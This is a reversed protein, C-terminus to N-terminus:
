NVPAKIVSDGDFCLVTLVLLPGRIVVTISRWSDTQSIAGNKKKELLSAPPTTLRGRRAHPPGPRPRRGAGDVEGYEPTKSERVAAPQLLRQGEEDRRHRQQQGSEGGVRWAGAAEASSVPPLPLDHNLGLYLLQAKTPHMLAGTQQSRAGLWRELVMETAGRGTGCGLSENAVQKMATCPIVHTALGCVQAEMGNVLQPTGGLCGKCLPFMQSSGVVGAVAAVQPL